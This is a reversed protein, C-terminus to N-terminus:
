SKFVILFFIVDYMKKGLLSKPIEPVKFLYIELVFMHSM